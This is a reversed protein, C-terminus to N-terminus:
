AVVLRHQQRVALEHDRRVDHGHEAVARRVGPRAHEVGHHRADPSHLRAVLLLRLREIEFFSQRYSRLAFEVPLSVCATSSRARGDRGPSRTTAPATYGPM